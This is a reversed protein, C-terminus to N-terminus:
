CRKEENVETKQITSDNYWRKQFFSVAAGYDKGKELLHCLAERTEEDLEEAQNVLYRYECAVQKKQGVDSTLCVALDEATIKEEPSRGLYRCAVPFRHCAERFTQGIATAGAVGIVLDTGDPIVPEQDGPCKLPLGRSGDAEVIVVDYEDLLKRLEGPALGTIKDGEYGGGIPTFGYRGEKWMHATAAVATRYGASRLEKALEYILTTKGGAGTVAILRHKGPDIKLINRLSFAEELTQLHLVAELVGGAICRAKDSISRCNDREELRPDIDAMKLGQKVPFGDPLIGRLIGDISAQVPCDGIRAIVEGKHVLDGIMRCGTLIGEAPAYIVREAAVGGIVGPVGTNPIASGRYYIRGLDHGRKTEVVAHVDKGAVFGPGLGITVPAMEIRTGLNRKALIADVVIDPNWRRIWDGEPDVLVPIKEEALIREVIEEDALKATIGEVTVEKQYVAESFSVTRRIAAPMRCELVVVQFGSHYLKAIVGSALDGGGRVVVRMNKETLM